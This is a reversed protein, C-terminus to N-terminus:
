GSDGRRKRFADSMVVSTVLASFRYNKAEVAKQVEDVICRDASTIGRGTAFTLMKEALCRTFLDKKKLLIAKLQESGDFKTGDPLVGVADVDSGSDEQYRWAGIANYNELGFGLPDMKSHCSACMPDKRHLEMKQKLTANAPLEATAKLVDAGPPPPPPPTGLFNELIWRGRKTPSTRTPNSTISLVSGQTLVGSRQPYPTLDVRRFEMGDVGPIDYHAALPANLYTFKGDIFDLISRDENVVAEFFMKTEKKMFPMLQVFQNFKKDPSFLDLKRLQLWQGAFNDALAGARPDKLMRAIQGKLISEEHLKGQKALGFLEDDPMSSWLFYSLRSALEYDNLDRSAKPDNPKPDVEMHFLFNPSCLTAEVALQIGKEYSDGEKEALDAIKVLREVEESTAPRRFAKSVFPTLVRRTAEERSMGVPYATVLRKHPGPKANPDNNVPQEIEMYQIILNRDRNKPDPDQPHYYDNTFAVAFTHRGAVVEAPIEYVQPRDATARVEVTQIPKNDLLFAMKTAEPGAQQGYAKAALRYNGTVPFNYDIPVLTESFLGLSGDDLTAVNGVAPLQGGEFHVTKPGPLMITRDVIQEAAKLYKEMLLPSISLVDGINDFGYGVDDSPFDDAPRFDIGLLDRITNNYEERNLRRLTVRGPDPFKCDGTLIADVVTVMTQRQAATPQKANAPPMHNSRLNAAVKDWVDREKLLADNDQYRSFDIGGPPTKGSHCTVCFEKFLPAAEKKYDHSPTQGGLAPRYLAGAIVCICSLTLAIARNPRARFLESM